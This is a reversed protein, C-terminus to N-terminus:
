RGLAFHICLPMSESAGTSASLLPPAKPPSGCLSGGTSPLPPTTSQLVAIQVVLISLCDGPRGWPDGPTSFDVFDALFCSLDRLDLTGSAQTRLGKTRLRPGSDQAPTGRLRRWISFSLTFDALDLTGSAQTRLGETPASDHAPTRPPLGGRPRELM